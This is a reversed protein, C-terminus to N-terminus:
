APCRSPRTRVSPNLYCYSLGSCFSLRSQANHHLQFIASNLNSGKIVDDGGRRRSKGRCASFSGILHVHPVRNEKSHSSGSSVLFQRNCVRTMAFRRWRRFLVERGLASGRALVPVGPQVVLRVRWRTGLSM